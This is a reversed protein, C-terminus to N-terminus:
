RHVSDRWAELARLNDVLDQRSPDRGLAEAWADGAAQYLQSEFYLNGLLEWPLPDRPAAKAAKRFSRGAQDTDKMKQYALGLNIWLKAETTDITAALKYERIAAEWHEQRFNLNGLNIHTELHFADADLARGYAQRAEDYRGARALAIGLYNWGVPSGPTGEAGRRYHVIASDLANARLYHHGLAQEVEPTREM